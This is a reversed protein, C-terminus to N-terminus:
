LWMVQPRDKNILLRMALEFSDSCDDHPEVGFYLLENVLQELGTERFFVQDNTFYPVLTELRARKDTHQKIPTPHINYRRAFEEIASKQYAVDEIGLQLTKGENLAKHDCWMKYIEEMTENFNWRGRRNELVYYKGDVCLAIATISTYDATESKSIALDVGIGISVVKPLTRFYRVEKIIQEEPAIIKLLYERSWAIEGVKQRQRDLSAQDPYKGKWVCEGNEDILPIKIVKFLPNRSLRAMFGDNHLLNGIVILKSKSEQVAPIVEANFWAETKDRQDKSKVQLLNEPDDVVVLDPRWQKHRIGRINQGRSRGIIRVGNSLLLNYDSWTEGLTIHPFLMKIFRNNEIETKINYINGKVQESTDNIIVIFKYEGTLASWLVLALSTLTTKVSGRFGIVEILQEEPDSLTDCLELQYPASEVTVYHGLCTYFFGVLSEMMKALDGDDELDFNPLQNKPNKTKM